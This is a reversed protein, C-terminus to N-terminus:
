TEEPEREDEDERDEHAPDTDALYPELNEDGDLLDLLAILEEIKTEIQARRYKLLASSM